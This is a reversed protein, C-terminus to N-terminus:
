ERKKLHRFSQIKRIRKSIFIGLSSGENNCLESYHFEDPLKGYFEAHLACIFQESAIRFEPTRAKEHLTQGVETHAKALLQLQRKPPDASYDGNMAKELELPHTKVGEILNSYYSNMPSVIGAIVERVEHNISNALFASKRLLDSAIGSLEGKADEPFLPFIATPDRYLSLEKM